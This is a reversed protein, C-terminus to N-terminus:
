KAFRNPSPNLKTPVNRSTFYEGSDLVVSPHVTVASKSFSNVGCKLSKGFFNVTKNNKQKDAKGKM